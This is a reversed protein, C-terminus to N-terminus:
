LLNKVKLFWNISPNKPTGKEIPPVPLLIGNIMARKIIASSWFEKKDLSKMAPWINILLKSLDRNGDGKGLWLFLTLIGLMKRHCKNELSEFPTIRDKMIILRYWLIFLLEASNNVIKKSLLHPLGYNNNTPHYELIDKTYEILNKGDFIKKSLIDIIYYEFRTADEKSKLRAQFQRPKINMGLTTRSKHKDITFQYLRFMVTIFRAPNLFNVCSLEILEQTELKIKSKLISYNLEEGRLPTGSANLRIFLNEVELEQEENIEDESYLNPITTDELANELYLAPIKFESIIKIVAQYIDLIRKELYRQDNTLKHIQAERGGLKGSNNSEIRKAIFIKNWLNWNFINELLETESKNNVAADLFINLPLPLTAEIPFCNSLNPKIIDFGEWLNIADRKKQAELPRYNPTRQYGWPHSDTIVRFVYKRSDNTPLELDIFIKYHGESGRFTKTQFGLMIATVRQQGDLLQLQSNIDKNFVFSGIPYKRLISDWLDEIQNPRWVFGRQVNPLKVYPNENELWTAIETLKFMEKNSEM